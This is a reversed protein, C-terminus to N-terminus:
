PDEGFLTGVSLEVADFPEARVREGREAILIALYGPESWRYITLTEDRPDVIWYSPIRCRHYVRMKRVTDVRPNGPSLIECVWDPRLRLPSGKPREPLDARRYGILDPRYVEHTELEVEVETM